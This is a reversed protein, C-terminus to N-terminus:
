CSLTLAYVSHFVGPTASSYILMTNEQSYPLGFLLLKYGGTYVRFLELELHNWALLRDPKIEGSVEHHCSYNWYSSSWKDRHRETEEESSLQVLKAQLLQGQLDDQKNRHGQTFNQGNCSPITAVCLLNPSILWTLLFHCKSYRFYVLLWSM